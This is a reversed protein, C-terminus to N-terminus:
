MLFTELMGRSQNDPMLWIGLKLGESNTSILGDSPLRDPLDPFQSVCHGRVQAFRQEASDNADVMIGVIEAGTAKLEAGIVGPTLLNSIGDFPKIFVIADVATEGWPVGNAEILEPIVRLDEDGEVLLKKPHIRNPM